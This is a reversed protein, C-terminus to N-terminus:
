GLREADRMSGESISRAAQEDATIGEIGGATAARERKSETALTAARKRAAEDRRGTLGKFWEIFRM